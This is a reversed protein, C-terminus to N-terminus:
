FTLAQLKYRHKLVKGTSKPLNQIQGYKLHAIKAAILNYILNNFFIYNYM